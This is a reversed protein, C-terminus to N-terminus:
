KPPLPPLGRKRGFHHLSSISASPPRRQCSQLLWTCRSVAEARAVAGPATTTAAPQPESPRSDAPALTPRASAASAASSPQLVRPSAPPVSRNAVRIGWAIAVIAIAGSIALALRKAKRTPATEAKAFTDMAVSRQPYHADYEPAPEQALPAATDLETLDFPPLIDFAGKPREEAAAERQPEASLDMAPQEALGLARAATSVLAVDITRRRAAHAAELSRDCVLNIVRPLGGSLLAVAQIAEPTFEVGATV